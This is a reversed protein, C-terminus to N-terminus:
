APYPNNSPPSQNPHNLTQQQQKITNNGNSGNNNNSGGARRRSRKRGPEEIAEDWDQPGAKLNPNSERAGYGRERRKTQKNKESCPPSTSPFSLQLTPDRRPCCEPQSPLILSPLSLTFAHM